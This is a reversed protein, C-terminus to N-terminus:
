LSVDLELGIGDAYKASPVIDHQRGWYLEMEACKCRGIPTTFGVELRWRNITDYRSDYYGEINGFPTVEWGWPHTQYKVRVRDRYRQYDKGNDNGLDIRARNEIRTLENPHWIYRFEFLFLRDVSHGEGASAPPKDSYNVGARFVINDNLKYIAYGTVQSDVADGTDRDRTGATKLLFQWPGFTPSYVDLEPWFEQDARAPQCLLVCALALAVYEAGLRHAARGAQQTTRCPRASLDLTTRPQGPLLLVADTWTRGVM